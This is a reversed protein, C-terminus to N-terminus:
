LWHRKSDWCFKGTGIAITMEKIEWFVGMANKSDWFWKELASPLPEKPCGQALSVKPPHWHRGSIPTSCALSGHFDHAWNSYRRQGGHLHDHIGGGSLFPPPQNSPILEAVQRKLINSTCTWTIDLDDLGCSCARLVFSPRNVAIHGGRLPHHVHEKCESFQSIRMPQGSTHLKLPPVELTDFLSPPFQPMFYAFHMRKLSGCRALPVWISVCNWVDKEGMRGSFFRM